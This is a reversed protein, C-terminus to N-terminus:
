RGHPVLGYFLNMATNRGPILARDVRHLLQHEEFTEDRKSIAEQALDRLQEIDRDDMFAM